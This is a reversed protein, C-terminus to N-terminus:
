ATDPAPNNVMAPHQCLLYGTRDTLRGYAILPPQDQSLIACKGTFKDGNDLTTFLSEDMQLIIEQPACGPISIILRMVEPASLLRDVKIATVEGKAPYMVWAFISTSSIETTYVATPSPRLHGYERSWWGQVPEKQGKIIEVLWDFGAVPVIRLNGV